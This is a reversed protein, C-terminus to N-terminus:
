PTRNIEVLINNSFSNSVTWPPNSVDSWYYNQGTDTSGGETASSFQYDVGEVTFVLNGLDASPLAKDLTLHLKPDSPDPEYRISLVEYDETGIVFERDFLHGYRQGSQKVVCWGNIIPACFGNPGSHNEPDMASGWVHGTPAETVTLVYTGAPRDKGNVEIFYDGPLRDGTDVTVYARPTAGWAATM